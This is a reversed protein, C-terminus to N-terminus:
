KWRGIAIYSFKFSITAISVLGFPSVPVGTPSVNGIMTTIVAPESFHNITSVNVEYNIFTSPFTVINNVVSGRFGGGYAVNNIVDTFQKNGWCIMIGDEFKVYNGNPNSGSEAIVKSALDNIQEGLAVDKDYLETFNDNAKTKFADRAIDTGLIVKKAM